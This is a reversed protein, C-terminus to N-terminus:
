RDPHSQDVPAARQGTSAMMERYLDAYRAMMADLSFDRVVIARAADGHTTRAGPDDIYHLMARELAAPSDVPYTLGTVGNVVLEPNGGVRSAIVPLGSSMAELITNSIGENLSTLMFVDISRLLVPIDSRAGLLTVESELRLARVLDRLDCAAPGDGVIILKVRGTLDPRADLISRLAHLMAAQNKVPDLRGVTGFTVSTDRLDVPGASAVCRSPRFNLM